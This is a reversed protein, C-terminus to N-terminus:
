EKTDAKVSLRKTAAQARRTNRTFYNDGIVLGVVLIMALGEPGVILMLRWFNFARMGPVINRLVAAHVGFVLLIASWFRLKKWHQRFPGTVLYLLVVTSSISYLAGDSLHGGSAEYALYVVAVSLGLGVSGLFTSSDDETNSSKKKEILKSLQAM